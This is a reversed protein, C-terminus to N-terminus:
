AASVDDVLGMTGDQRRYVANVRATKENTFVLADEGAKEMRMIADEIRM